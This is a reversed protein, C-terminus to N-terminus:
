YLTTYRLISLQLALGPQCKLYKVTAAKSPNNEPFWSLLLGPFSPHLVPRFAPSSFFTSAHLTSLFSSGAPGYHTPQPLLPLPHLCSIRLIFSLNQRSHNLSRTQAQSGQLYHLQSPLPLPCLFKSKQKKHLVLGEQGWTESCTQRFLM